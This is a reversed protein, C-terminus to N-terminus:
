ESGANYQPIIFNITTGQRPGQSEVWIDGNHNEIIRKCISLGLGSSSRDHRSSDAKYFEEFARKIQDPTMGIGTDSISMKFNSSIAEGNLTVSGKAGMYKIANSIINYLLEKFLIRDASITIPGPMNNIFRVDQDKIASEFGAIVNEIDKAIDFNEINLQLDTSNLKTLNLTKETLAKMYTVNKSVLDLMRLTEPESINKTIMPLLAVMPTLPTRLDHSLQNIFADKQRLLSNVERTREEVREELKLNMDALQDQLEKTRLAARVRARLEFADFPKTVYDVAGLDLGTIRDRNDDSATLFIVPILCLEKDEKLLGCIDFGSMGPMDIDLLILDPKERRATDLTQKGDELCLTELNDKKLRAEAIALAKSSDDVILIKTM